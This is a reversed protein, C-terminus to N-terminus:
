TTRYFDTFNRKPPLDLVVGNLVIVPLIRFWIDNDMIRKMERLFGRLEGADRWIRWHSISTPVSRANNKGTQLQVVSQCVPNEDDSGDDFLLVYATEEPL